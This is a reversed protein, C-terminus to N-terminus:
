WARQFSALGLAKTGRDKVRPVHDQVALPPKLVAFPHSARKLEVELVGAPKQRFVSERYQEAFAATFFPRPAKVQVKM